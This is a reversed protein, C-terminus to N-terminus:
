IIYLHVWWSQTWICISSAMIQIHNKKSIIFYISSFFSFFKISISAQAIKIQSITNSHHICFSLFFIYYFVIFYFLDMCSFLTNSYLLFHSSPVQKQLAFFAAHLLCYQLHSLYSHYCAQISTHTRLWVHDMWICHIFM